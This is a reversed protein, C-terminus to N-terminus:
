NFIKLVFYSLFAFGVGKAFTESFIFGFSFDKRAQAWFEKSFTKEKHDLVKMKEKHLEIVEELDQYVIEHFHPGAVPDPIHERVLQLTQAYNQARRQCHSCETIHKSYFPGPEKSPNELYPILNRSFVCDRDNFSALMKRYVDRNEPSYLYSSEKLQSM